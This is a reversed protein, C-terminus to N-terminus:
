VMSLNLSPLSLLLISSQKALFSSLQKVAAKRSTFFFAETHGSEENNNTIWFVLKRSKYVVNQLTKSVSTQMFITYWRQSQVMNQTVKRLSAKRRQSPEQDESDSDSDSTSTSQSNLSRVVRHVIIEEGWLVQSFVTHCHM